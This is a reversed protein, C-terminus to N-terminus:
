CRGSASALQGSVRRSRPQSQGLSTTGGGKIILRIPLDVLRGPVQMAQAKDILAFHLLEIDEAQCRDGGVVALLNTLESCMQADAL